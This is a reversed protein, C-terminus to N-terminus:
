CCYYRYSYCEDIKSPVTFALVKYKDNDRYYTNFNHFDRGAAGMLIVIIRDM